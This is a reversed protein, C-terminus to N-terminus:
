SATDITFIKHLQTIKFVKFIEPSLNRLKLHGRCQTVTTQLKVLFGLFASSMFKVKKFDLVIWKGPPAQEALKQIDVGIRDLLDETVMREDRFTIVVDDYVPEIDLHPNNLDYRM